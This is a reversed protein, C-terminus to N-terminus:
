YAKDNNRKDYNEEMCLILRGLMHRSETSIILDVNLSCLVLTGSLVNPKKPVNKRQNHLSDVSTSNIRNNYYIPSFM